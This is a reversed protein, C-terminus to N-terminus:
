LICHHDYGIQAIVFDLITLKAVSLKTLFFLDFLAFSIACSFPVRSRKACSKYKAIAYFPKHSSITTVNGSVCSGASNTCGSLFIRVAVLLETVSKNLRTFIPGFFTSLTMISPINKSRFKVTGRGWVRLPKTHCINIFARFIDSCLNSKTNSM